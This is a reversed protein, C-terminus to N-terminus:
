LLIYGISPLLFQMPCFRRVGGKRGFWSKALDVRKNLGKKMFIHQQVGNIDSVEGLEM